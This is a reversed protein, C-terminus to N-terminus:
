KAASTTTKLGCAPNTPTLRQPPNRLYPAAVQTPVSKGFQRAAAEGSNEVYQCGSIGFGLCLLSAATLRAPQISPKFSNMRFKRTAQLLPYTVRCSSKLAAIAEPRDKVM